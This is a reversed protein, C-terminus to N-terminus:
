LPQIDHTTGGRTTARHGRTAAYCDAYLDLYAKIKEERSGSEPLLNRLYKVMDWAVRAASGSSTDDLNEVRVTQDAM